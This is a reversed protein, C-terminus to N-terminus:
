TQESFGWPPGGSFPLKEISRRKAPSKNKKKKKRPDRSVTKRRGPGGQRKKARSPAEEKKKAEHTGKIGGWVFGERRCFLHNGKGITVPNEKEWDETKVKERGEAFPSFTKKIRRAVYNKRSVVRAGGKKRVQV